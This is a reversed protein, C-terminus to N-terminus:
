IRRLQQHHQDKKRKRKPRFEYWSRLEKRSCATRKEEEAYAGRGFIERIEKKAALKRLVKSEKRKTTLLPNKKEKWRYAIKPSRRRV